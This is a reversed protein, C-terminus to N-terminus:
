GNAQHSVFKEYALDHIVTITKIGASVPYRVFNFNVVLDPRGGHIYNIPPMIGRKFAQNWVKGPFIRSIRTPLGLTEIFNPVTTTAFLNGVLQFDYNHQIQALARIVNETYYGIGSKNGSPSALLHTVELWVQPRKAM